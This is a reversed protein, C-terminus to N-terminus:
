SNALLIEPITFVVQVKNTVKGNTHGSFQVKGYKKFLRVYYKSQLIACGTYGRSSVAYSAFCQAYRITSSPMTRPKVYEANVYDLKSKPKKSILINEM